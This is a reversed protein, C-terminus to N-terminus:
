INPVRVLEKTVFMGCAAQVDPGVKPIMKVSRFLGCNNIVSLYNMIMKDNPEVGQMPSYPNYRVLNFKADVIDYKQITKVFAKADTLTANEGKILAHHFTVKIGEKMMVKILPLAKDVAMAKPIWRKRFDADVSYMSYYIEPTIGKKFNDILATPFEMTDPLITSIKFKVLSTNVVQKIIDRIETSLAAWNNRVVPNDLPEGRAMFNVHVKSPNPKTGKVNEDWYKL